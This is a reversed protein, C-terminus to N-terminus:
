QPGGGTVNMEFLSGLDYETLWEKLENSSLRDFKSEGVGSVDEHRQVVVVDEPSFQALLRPSQTAVIVQRKTSIAKILDGIIGLASPHLGLEPEDILIVAPLMEEPQLLATILAIARLSGDSLQHPGFEYEPNRDCWRLKIRGPGHPDPELILDKLYPVALRVTSLIRAYHTAKAERLMYLIAALNGGNSMLSRNRDVDELTRIYASESTDHFHYVQLAKLRSIFVRAVKMVGEGKSGSPTPEKALELLDSELQGANLTRSFSKKDKPRRFQVHEDTFLLRDPSAFALSFGYQSTGGSGEFYLEGAMVPTRKAGYHLISTGGGKKGVYVQLSGSLMFSLMNFFAVFNSKGSGNAGILVNLDRLKLDVRRLSRFGEIRIRRLKDVSKM